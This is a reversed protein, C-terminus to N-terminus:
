ISKIEDVLKLDKGVFIIVYKKLNTNDIRNDLSYRKLQSIAELKKEKLIKESYESKKIYKFEIMIDYNTINKDKRLIMLDIYGNNVEYETYINFANNNNNTEIIVAYMLQIYKEDYSILTRNSMKKFINEIFQSLPLINGNSRLEKLSSSLISNDYQLNILEIFYNYYLRNMIKNPIKFIINGDEDVGGNTLYGFYYLLSIIDDRDFDKTLDFCVKLIGSIKGEKLLTDIIDLYYKNDYLKLLNGIKGSNFAINKDSLEDPIENFTLYQKMFYMVLTANFVKENANKNFMYGNYNKLMVDFIEEQKNKSIEVDDILKKVEEHTLGIMSNFIPNTSLDTCINFGTTMSDLTIPCIGTAFFRGVVNNRVYEKIVAYFSKLFGGNGVISKFRDGNDELIANTFNDYEDIIIYINNELKLAEFNSFLDLLIRNSSKDKYDMSINLNYYNIFNNIGNIVKNNFENELEYENRNETTIGSFDFYLIYYNNKDKTPNNYVYTDKFLTDYLGKSNVDYYYYMMSTFLSKGFRGPRLYMLTEGADELKELYMTKDIYYYNNERLKKYNIIRYPIKYM